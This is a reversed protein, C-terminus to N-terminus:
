TKLILNLASTLDFVECDPIMKPDTPPTEKRRNLWMTRMGVAKAPYIDSLINDGISLTEEASSGVIKLAGEYYALELKEYGVVESGLTYMFYDKGCMRKIVEAKEESRRGSSLCLIYGASALGDLFTIADPFLLPRDLVAESAEKFRQNLLEAKEKNYPERLHKFLLRWQFDWDSHREPLKLHIIKTHINVMFERYVERGSINFLGDLKSAFIVGTDNLTDDYDILISRIVKTVGTSVM